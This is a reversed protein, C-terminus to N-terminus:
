ALPWTWPGAVERRCGPDHSDAEPAEAHVQAVLFGRLSGRVDCAAEPREWLLVFVECTVSEASKVDFRRLAAAYVSSGHRTYLEFLAPPEGSAVSAVLVEDDSSRLVRRQSRHARRRGPPVHM